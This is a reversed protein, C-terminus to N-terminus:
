FSKKLMFLYFTKKALQFKSWKILRQGKKEEILLNIALGGGPRVVLANTQVARNEAAGIAAIEEKKIQAFQEAYPQYFDSGGAHISIEEEQSIKPSGSTSEVEPALKAKAEQARQNAIKIAQNKKSEIDLTAARDGGRRFNLAHAREATQEAATIAADKVEDIERYAKALRVPVVGKSVVEMRHTSPLTKGDAGIFSPVLPDKSRERISASASDSSTSKLEEGTTLTDSGSSEFDTPSLALPPTVSHPIDM